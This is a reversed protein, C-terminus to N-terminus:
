PGYVEIENVMACPTNTATIWLRIRDTEVPKFTHTLHDEERGAAQAVNKWDGDVFAQVVYDRLSRRYPFLEVRTVATPEPLRLEIWDPSENPTSDRWILVEFEDKDAIVGDVLRWLGNDKRRFRGARNSSAQVAIPGSEHGEFALNGPKHRRQNASAIEAVIADVSRLPPAQAATTYVRSEYPAFRETFRGKALQVRRNESVVALSPCDRALEPLSLTLDRAQNEVNAILLYVEGDKERCLFRVADSDAEVNVCGEPSVVVGGLWALERTLQPMGLSLEPYHAVCRNFQLVGTAGLTVALLTQRRLEHYNPIRQGVLGFDNANYGQPMFVVSPMAPDLDRLRRWRAMMEAVSALDNFSRDALIPPTPHLALIDACNKYAQLADPDRVSVIVPHYPDLARMIGYLRHLAAPDVGDRDPRDYLFIMGLNPDSRVRQVAQEAFEQLDAEVAGERLQNLM